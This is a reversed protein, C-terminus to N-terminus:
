LNRPIGYSHLDKLLEGELCCVAEGIDRLTVFAGSEVAVRVPHGDVYFARDVVIHAPYDVKRVDRARELWQETAEVM